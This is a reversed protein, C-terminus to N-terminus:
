PNSCAAIKRLCAPEFPVWTSHLEANEPRESVYSLLVINKRGACVNKGRGKRKLCVFKTSGNSSDCLNAPTFFPLASRLSLLKYVYRTQVRRVVCTCVKAKMGSRPAWGFAGFLIKPFMPAPDSTKHYGVLLRHLEVCLDAVVCDHKKEYLSELRVLVRSRQQSIQVAGPM